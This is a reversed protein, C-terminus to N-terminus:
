NVVKTVVPDGHIILEGAVEEEDEDKSETKAQRLAELILKVDDYDVGEVSVSKSEGGSNVNVQTINLRSQAGVTQRFREMLNVMSDEEDNIGMAKRYIEQASKLASLINLLDVSRLSFKKVVKTKGPNKLDPVEVEVPVDSVQLRALMELARGIGLKSAKLFMDHAEAIGDIHRAVLQQTIQDQLLRKREDWDMAPAFKMFIHYQSESYGKVNILYDRISAHPFLVGREVMLADLDEIRAIKPGHKPVPSTALAVSSRRKFVPRNSRLSKVDFPKKGEPKSTTRVFKAAM